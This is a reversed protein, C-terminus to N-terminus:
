IEGEETKEGVSHKEIYETSTGCLPCSSPEADLLEQNWKGTSIYEQMYQKWMSLSIDGGISMSDYVKAKLENWAPMNNAANLEKAQVYILQYISEIRNMFDNTFKLFTNGISKLTEGKKINTQILDEKIAIDDERKVVAKVRSYYDMERQAEQKKMTEIQIERSKIYLDRDLEEKEIISNKVLLETQTNSVSTLDNALITRDKIADPITNQVEEVFQRLEYNTDFHRRIGEVTFQFRTMTKYEDVNAFDIISVPIFIFEDTKVSPPDYEEIPHCIFIDTDDDVMTLYTKIGVEDFFTSKIDFDGYLELTSKKAIASVEVNYPGKTTYPSIFPLYYLHGQTLTTYKM